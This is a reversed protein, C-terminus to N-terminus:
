QRTRRSEIPNSGYTAVRIKLHVDPRVELIGNMAISSNKEYIKNIFQIGMVGLRETTVLVM